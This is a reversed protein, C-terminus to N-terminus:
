TNLWDPDFGDFMSGPNSLDPLPLSGLRDFRTSMSPHNIQQAMPISGSPVDPVPMYTQAPRGFNM